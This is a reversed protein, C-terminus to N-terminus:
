GDNALLKTLMACLEDEEYERKSISPLSLPLDKKAMGTILIVRRKQQQLEHAWQKGDEHTQITGDTIILDYPSLRDAQKAQDLNYLVGLKIEPMMKHVTGAVITRWSETDDVLLVLPM